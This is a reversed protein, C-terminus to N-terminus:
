MCLFCSGSLKRRHIRSLDCTGVIRSARWGSGFPRCGTSQWSHSATASRSRPACHLFCHCRFFFNFIQDTVSLSNGPIPM